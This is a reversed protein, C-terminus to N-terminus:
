APTATTSWSLAQSLARKRRRSPRNDSASISSIERATTSKNSRIQRWQSAPLACHKKGVDRPIRSGATVPALNGAELADPGPVFREQAALAFQALRQAIPNRQPQPKSEFDWWHAPQIEVADAHQGLGLSGGTERKFNM